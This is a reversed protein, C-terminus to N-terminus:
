DHGNIGLEACTPPTFERGTMEVWERLLRRRREEAYRQADTNGVVRAKCFREQAEIIDKELLSAEVKRVNNALGQYDSALVFGSMGPLWGYAAAIHGAALLTIAIRWVGTRQQRDMDGLLLDSLFGKM